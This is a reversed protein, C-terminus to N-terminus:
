CECFSGASVCAFTLIPGSARGAGICVRQRIRMRRAPLGEMAEVGITGRAFSKSHGVDAGSPM